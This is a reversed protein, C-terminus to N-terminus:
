GTSPILGAGTVGPRTRWHTSLEAPAPQKPKPDRSEQSFRAPLAAQLGEAFLPIRWLAPVPANIGELQMVVGVSMRLLRRAAILMVCALPVEAVAASAVSMWFESTGIDLMLDFWADCLLLTGTITLCMILIQRERWSAWATAAFAGLLAFDFGVWAGRWHSAHYEKPLTVMLVAIWGALVVCGGMFVLLSLRRRRAFRADRLMHPEDMVALMQALHQREDPSMRRLEAEDIV